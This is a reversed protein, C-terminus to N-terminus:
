PKYVVFNDFHIDTGPTEFAGALLGVDGSAFTADQYEALFEGNVSLKLKDGICEARLHNTANGITIKDSPPMADVGILNQEGNQVIGVGYYGDSSILMFYFNDSDQYRCLVGFDNNDDGDVKTADVDVIVDTFDLGPNAWVDTNEANAFIRYAGDVYDTVGEPANVRDWGSSTDSFDDQFLVNNAPASGESSGDGSSPGPAISSCALLSFLLALAFVLLRIKM